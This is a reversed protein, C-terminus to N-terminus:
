LCGSNEVPYNPHSHIIGQILILLELLRDDEPVNPEFNFDDTWTVQNIFSGNTIKLHFTSTPVEGSAYINSSYNFFNILVAKKYVVELEDKSLKFPIIKSETEDLPTHILEGNVTDLINLPMKGCSDEQFILSFDKAMPINEPVVTKTAVIESNPKCSTILAMFLIFLLSKTKM